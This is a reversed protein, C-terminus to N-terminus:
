LAMRATARRSRRGLLRGLAILLLLIVLTVAGAAAALQHPATGPQQVDYFAVYTLYPVQHHLLHFSPNQGDLFGATFILPATEGQSIALAVVLGSLIGPLATPLVIQTVTTLRDLGLGTAAETLASPVQRLSLETTKVIYPLVLVSLALIGALLSYHWHFGNVLAVYGVFGIVISPMGALIGSFFRLPGAVRPPAFEALYIGAGVGVTGGVILVGLLLLLTGLIANELGGGAGSTPTSFLKTSVEPAAQHFVSALLALAPAVICILAVVGASWFVANTVSRRRM